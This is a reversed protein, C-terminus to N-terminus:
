AAANPGNGDMGGITPENNYSTPKRSPESFQVDNGRNGVYAKIMVPVWSSFDVGGWQGARVAELQDPPCGVWGGNPDPTWLRFDLQDLRGAKILEQQEPPCGKKPDLLSLLYSMTRHYGELLEWQRGNMVLMIPENEGQGRKAALDTQAATRARDNRVMNDLKEFGFKAMKFRQLSASEFSAPTVSVVQPTKKWQVGDIHRVNNIVSSPMNISPKGSMNAGDTGRARVNGVMPLMSATADPDPEPTPIHAATAMPDDGNGPPPTNVPTNKPATTPPTQNMWPKLQRGMQPGVHNIFMQHLIYDPVNPHAQKWQRWLGKFRTEDLRLWERFRM